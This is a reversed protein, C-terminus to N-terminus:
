WKEYVRFQIVYKIYLEGTDTFYNSAYHPYFMILVSLHIFFLYLGIQPWCISVQALSGVFGERQARNIACGGFDLGEAAVSIAGISFMFVDVM